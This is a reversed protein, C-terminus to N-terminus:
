EGPTIVGDKNIDAIEVTEAICALATGDNLLIRMQIEADGPKFSLTDDQTLKFIMLKEDYDIDVLDTIDKDVVIKGKQQSIRLWVQTLLHLDLESKVTIDISPTTGRIFQMKDEM